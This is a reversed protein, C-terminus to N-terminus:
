CDWKGLGREAKETTVTPVEPFGESSKLFKGSNGNASLHSSAGVLGQASGADLAKIIAGLANACSLLRAKVLM